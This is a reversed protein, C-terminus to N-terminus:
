FIARRGIGPHGVIVVANMKACLVNLDKRALDYEERRMVSGAYFSDPLGRIVTMTRPIEVDEVAYDPRLVTEEYFPSKSKVWLDQWFLVVDKPLAFDEEGRRARKLPPQDTILLLTFHLPPALYVSGPAPLFL